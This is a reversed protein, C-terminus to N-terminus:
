TRPLDDPLRRLAPRFVLIRPARFRVLARYLAGYGLVLLACFFMLMGTDDWWILAPACCLAALMWLYLSTISNRLVVSLHDRRPGFRRVLRRHILQHLHLSDPRGMHHLGYTARRAMSFLTEWVPYAMLLMPFWASVTPNRVVLLISLEAILFGLTYAGADGLFIRGFPFNWLLFGLVTAAALFASQMIFVDGLQRAVVGLSVLVMLCVMAALGNCGDIINTAHAVGASAVLTLALAALPTAALWADVFPLEIRNLSGQLLWWGLAGSIMTVALRLMVGARRTVDELLGIAFAPLLCIILFATERELTETLWAMALLGALYGIFIPVGGLRPVWHRHMKQAGQQEDTGIQHARAAQITVSCLWLSTFFALIATVSLDM